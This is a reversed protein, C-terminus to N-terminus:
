RPARWRHRAVYREGWKQILGSAMLRGLMDRVRDPSLGSGAWVEHFTVGDFGRVARLITNAPKDDLDDNM